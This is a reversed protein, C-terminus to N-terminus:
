ADVVWVERGSGPCGRLLAGRSSMELAFSAVEQTIMEGPISLPTGPPYPTVTAASVQGAAEEWRVRRAPGLAAQRPRMVLPGAPPVAPEAARRGGAAARGGARAERDLAALASALAGVSGEDDAGTLIFVLHREGAMEPWVGHQRRLRRAAEWGSLGLASVDVTVRTEDLRFPAPLDGPALCRYPGASEIAARAQRGLEVARGVREPGHREMEVRAADLSALLAPQPSTSQLAALLRDVRDADPGGPARTRHLLAAQTLAPLTKHVGHVVLHAGSGIGTPPAPPPYFALHAGHAEDVLLPLPGVVQAVAALDTCIGEYTPSTVLVADVSPERPLDQPAPPLPLGWGPLWRPAVFVPVADALVLADIASRHVLRPMLLRGGAPVGALIMAQVGATAGNWLLWARESGWLRAALRAAQESAEQLDDGHQPDWVADGGDWAWPVGAGAPWVEPVWRGRKHGPTHFVAPQRRAAEM